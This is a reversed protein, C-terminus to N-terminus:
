FGFAAGLQFVIGDTHVSSEFPTRSVNILTGRYNIRTVTFANTTEFQLDRFKMEAILSLHRSFQFSVGGLVHIGFGPISSTAPAATGGISYVRRGFYGGAGGGMFVGFSGSSVPILFYGTVEVPIVDYGDEVPIVEQPFAFSNDSSRARIYDASVGIAIRTEPIQYRLELSAGFFDGVMFSESRLVPDAVSPNPFIQSSTTFNGKMIASFINEAGRLPSSCTLGCLAVLALSRTRRNRGSSCTGTTKL